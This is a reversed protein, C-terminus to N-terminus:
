AHPVGDLDMPDVTLDTSTLMISHDSGAPADLMDIAAVLPQTEDPPIVQVKVARPYGASASAPKTDFEVYAASATQQSPDTSTWPVLTQVAAKGSPLSATSRTDKMGLPKGDQDLLEVGPYGYITCTRKSANVLEIYFDGKTPRSGDQPGMYVNLKLDGSHCRDGAPTGQVPAAGTPAAPTTATATGGGAPPALPTGAPAVSAPAAATRAPAPSATTSGGCATLTLGTTVTAALATVLRNIRM